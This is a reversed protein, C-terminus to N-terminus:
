YNHWKCKACIDRWDSKAKYEEPMADPKIMGRAVDANEVCDGASIMRDFLPRMVQEVANNEM